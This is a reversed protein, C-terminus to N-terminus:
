RDWWHWGSLTGGTVVSALAAGGAMILLLGVGLAILGVGGREYQTIPSDSPPASRRSSSRTSRTASQGDHSRRGPARPAARGCLGIRDNVVLTGLPVDWAEQRSPSILIWLAPLPTIAPPYGFALAVVKSSERILMRGGSATLGTRLDVVRMGLLRKGPSQGDRYTIVSWVLWGVGGTLVILGIELLAARARQLLSSVAVGEAFGAVQGCRRCVSSITTPEGCRVCRDIVVAEWVACGLGAHTPAQTSPCTRNSAARNSV